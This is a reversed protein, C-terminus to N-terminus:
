PTKSGYARLWQSIIGTGNQRERDFSRVRGARLQLRERLEQNEAALAIVQDRLVEAHALRCLETGLPLLGDAYLESADAM